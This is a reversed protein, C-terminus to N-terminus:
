DVYISHLILGARNLFGIVVNKIVGGWGGGGGRDACSYCYLFVLKISGVIVAQWWRGSSPMIFM